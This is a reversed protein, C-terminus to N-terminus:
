ESLSQPEYKGGGRVEDKSASKLFLQVAAKEDIEDVELTRGFSQLHSRRSTIIVNGTDCTPLLDHIDVAEIDDYNDLVVLWKGNNEIALWEKIAGAVRQEEAEGAAVRGNEDLLGGLPLFSAIEKCPIGQRTYHTVLHEAIGRAARLLSVENTMEVWFMATYSTSYRFCYELANSSKGVGGLGYLVVAKRTMQRSETVGSKSPAIQQFESRITDM